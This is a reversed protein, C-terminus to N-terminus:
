NMTTDKIAQIVQLSDGELIIDHVGIVRNFEMACFAAMAEGVVPEEYGNITKSQAAIVLGKERNSWIFKYLKIHM